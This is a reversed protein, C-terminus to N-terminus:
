ELRADWAYFSVGEDHASKLSLRICDYANSFTHKVSYRVPVKTLGLVKSRGEHKDKSCHRSVQLVVKVPEDAWLVISGIREEGVGVATEAVQFLYSKKNALTVRDGQMLGNPSEVARADVLVGNKKVWASFYSGYWDLGDMYFPILRNVVERSKLMERNTIESLVRQAILKYGEQNPHRPDRYLDVGAPFIKHIDVCYSLTACLLSARDYFYRLHQLQSSREREMFAMLIKDNGTLIRETNGGLIPQLFVIYDISFEEAVAKSTKINKYWNDVPDAAYVGGKTYGRAAPFIGNKKDSNMIKTVFYVTNPIFVSWKIKDNAILGINQAFRQQYNHTMPTKDVSQIFGLDNVGNMAIVIDPALPIGGRILKLLEQSSSYGATGGNIISANYPTGLSEYLQVPWNYPDFADTTSGGLTVIRLGKTQPDGNVVFGPWRMDGKPYDTTLNWGYGLLPDVQDLNLHAANLKHAKGKNNFTYFFPQEKGKEIDILLYCGWEVLLLLLLTIITLIVSFSFYLIFESNKEKKIL